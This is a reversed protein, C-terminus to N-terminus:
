INTYVNAMCFRIQSPTIHVAPFEVSEVHNVAIWVSHQVYQSPFSTQSDDLRNNCFAFMRKKVCHSMMHVYM